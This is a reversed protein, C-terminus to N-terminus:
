TAAAFAAALAAILLMAARRASPPLQLRPMAGPPAASAARAHSHTFMVRRAPDRLVRAHPYHDTRPATTMSRVAGPQRGTVRVAVVSPAGACTCASHRRIRGRPQVMDSATARAAPRTAVTLTPEAPCGRPAVYSM